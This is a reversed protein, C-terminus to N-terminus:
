MVTLWDALSIAATMRWARADAPAGARGLGGIPSRLDEGAAAGGRIPNRHVREVSESERVGCAEESKGSCEARIAADCSVGVSNSASGGNGLRTAPRLRLLM